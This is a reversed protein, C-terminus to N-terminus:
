EKDPPHTVIKDTDQSIAAAHELAQEAGLRAGASMRRELEEEDYIQSLLRILREYGLRETRERKDNNAYHANTFGLLTAAREHDGVLGGLLAHHELATIM